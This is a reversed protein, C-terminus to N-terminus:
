LGFRGKFVLLKKYFLDWYRPVNTTITPASFGQKVDKNLHILGIQKIVGSAYAAQQTLGSTKDLTAGTKIDLITTEDYVVGDIKDWKGKNTSEIICLIDLRGAYRHEDNLVTKEVEIVKFPYAKYFARFDVDDLSLGLSGQVVTIYETSIEAIDKMEKWEGTLLFIEAQKHICTGRAAYQSLEEPSVHFDKDLSTISTVSPYKLGNAGDYWRIGSYQKAIREQYSVEAQKKFQSYCMDHLEKQRKEIDTNEWYADEPLEIIEKVSYFPKENEFSGTPITGTFSASIEITRKM